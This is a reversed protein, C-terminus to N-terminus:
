FRATEYTTSTKAPPKTEGRLTASLADYDSFCQITYTGDENRVAASAHAFRGQLHVHKCGNAHEVVELGDHDRRMREKLSPWEMKSTESSVATGADVPNGANSALSKGASEGLLTQAHVAQDAEPSISTFGSEPDPRDVEESVPNGGIWLLATIVILPIVAYLTAKTKPSLM